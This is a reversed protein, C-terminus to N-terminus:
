FADWYSAYRRNKESKPPRGVGRSSSGVLHLSGGLPLGGTPLSGRSVSGDWSASVKRGRSVSGRGKYASGGTFLIVSAESSSEARQSSINGPQFRTASSTCVIHLRRASSMRVVHPRCSLSVENSIEAPPHCIDDPRRGCTMRVRVRRGCMTQVDDAGSRM